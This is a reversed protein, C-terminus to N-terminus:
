EELIDWVEGNCREVLELKPARKGFCKYWDRTKKILYKKAKELDKFWACNYSEYYYEPHHKCDYGEILFSQEGLFEVKELIISYDYICWVEENIKPKM